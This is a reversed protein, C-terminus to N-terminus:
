LDEKLKKYIEETKEDTEASFIYCGEEAYILIFASNEPRVNIKCNGFGEVNYVGRQINDLGMGSVRDREPMHDLLMVNQIVDGDLSYDTEIQGAKLTGNEYSLTLPKSQMHVMYAGFALFAVVVFIVCGAFFKGMPRAHNICIAIGLKKEAALEDDKPNYYFIGHKWQADIEEIEPFMEMYRKEEKLTIMEGNAIWYPLYSLVILLIFAFMWFLVRVTTWYTLLLSFPLLALLVGVMTLFTGYKKRIRRVEEYEVVTNPITVGFIKNEKPDKEKQMMWFQVVLVVYYCIVIIIEANM